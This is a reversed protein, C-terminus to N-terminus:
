VDKEWKGTDPDIAGKRLSIEEYAQDICDKFDVGSLYAVNVLTVYVDGIADKIEHEDMVECAQLLELSEEVTIRAQSAADSMEYINREKAWDQIEDEKYM